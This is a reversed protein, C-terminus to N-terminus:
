LGALYDYWLCTLQELRDPDVRWFRRGEHLDGPVTRQIVGADELLRVHVYLREHACGAVPSLDQACAAGELTLHRIIAARTRHGILSVAESVDDPMDPPVTIVPM